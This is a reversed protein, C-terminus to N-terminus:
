HRLPGNGGGIKLTKSAELRGQLYKKALDVAEELDQGKALYAAIASSFTCGTGHTNSTVIRPAEYWRKKEKMMLVDSARTGKLHGGKLLVAKCGLSLLDEAGVEMEKKSVIPRELLISAEILNPTIVWALAFLEKMAALSKRQLLTSGGKAAMVPDIVIPLSRPLLEGVVEITSCHWVMGIKVARVPFDSLIAEIQGRVMKKSVAQIGFVGWTNQATIATIVSTGYCSLAAFTKLDAQIGAGAGSDSGAITLVCEM